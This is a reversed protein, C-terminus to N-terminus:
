LLRSLRQRPRTVAQDSAQRRAHKQHTLREQLESGMVTHLQHKHEKITCEHAAMRGAGDEVALVHHLRQQRVGNPRERTREASVRAQDHPLDDVLAFPQDELRKVLTKEHPIM